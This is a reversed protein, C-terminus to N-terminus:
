MGEGRGTHQSLIDWLTDLHSGVLCASPNLTDKLRPRSLMITLSQQGWLEPILQLEFPLPM